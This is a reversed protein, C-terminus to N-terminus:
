IQFTNSRLDYQCNYSEISETDLEIRQQKTNGLMHVYSNAHWAQEERPFVIVM